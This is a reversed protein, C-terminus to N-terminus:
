TIGKAKLMTARGFATIYVTGRGHPYAVLEMMGKRLLSNVQRTVPHGDVLWTWEYKICVGDVWGRRLVALQSKTVTRAEARRDMAAGTEQDLRRQQDINYTSMAKEPVNQFVGAGCVLGV